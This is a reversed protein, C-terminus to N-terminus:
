FNMQLCCQLHGADPSPSLSSSSSLGRLGETGLCPCSDVNRLNTTQVCLSLQIVLPQWVSPNPLWWQRAGLAQGRSLLFHLVLLTQSTNVAGGVGKYSPALSVQGLLPPGTGPSRWHPQKTTEAIGPWDGEAHHKYEGRSEM